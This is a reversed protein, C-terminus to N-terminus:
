PLVAEAAAIMRRLWLVGAGDLLLGVVLLGVGVRTGLLVGFPRAGVATGLLVGLLPLGSLVWGSARVGALEAALRERLMEREAAAAAVADFGAALGAGTGEALRWCVALDRLSSLGAAAGAATLAQAVDGGSGAAAAVPDAWGGVPLSAAVRTLAPRPAVGVRLEAAIEAAFRAVETARQRGARGRRLREVERRVLVAVGGLCLAWLVGALPGTLALAVAAACGIMVTPRVPGLRESM